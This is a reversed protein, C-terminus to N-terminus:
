ALILINHLFQAPYLSM